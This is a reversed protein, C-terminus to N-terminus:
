IWTRELSTVKLTLPTSNRVEWSFTLPLTTEQNSFSVCNYIILSSVVWPFGTITLLSLGSFLEM